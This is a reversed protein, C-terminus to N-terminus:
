ACRGGRWQHLDQEHHLSHSPIILHREGYRTGNAHRASAASRPIVKLTVLVVM